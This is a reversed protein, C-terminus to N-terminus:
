SANKTFPPRYSGTNYTYGTVIGHTLNYLNTIGAIRNKLWLSSRYLLFFTCNTSAQQNLNSSGGPTKRWPHSGTHLRGAVGRANMGQNRLQEFHKQGRSLDVGVTGGEEFFRPSGRYVAVHLVGCVIHYRLDTVEYPLRDYLIITYIRM